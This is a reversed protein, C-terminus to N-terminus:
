NLRVTTCQEAKTEASLVQAGTDVFVGGLVLRPHKLFQKYYIVFCPRRPSSKLAYQVNSPMLSSVAPNVEKLRAKSSAILKM